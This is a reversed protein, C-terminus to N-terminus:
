NKSTAVYSLCNKGSKCFFFVPPMPRKRRRILMSMRLHSLPTCYIIFNPKGKIKDDATNSTQDAPCTSDANRSFEKTPQSLSHLLVARSVATVLRRATDTAGAGVLLSYLGEWSTPYTPTGDSLLWGEMLSSWCIEPCLHERKIAALKEASIELLQGIKEWKCGALTVLYFNHTSGKDDSWKILNLANLTLPIALFFFVVFILKLM